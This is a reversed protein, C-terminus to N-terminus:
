EINIFIPLHDSCGGSETRRPYGKFYGHQEFLYPTRFINGYYDSNYISRQLQLGDSGDVLNGSVVINDLMNWEHKYAYTGYGAMFMSYFPNFLEGRGINESHPVAGLSEKASRDRPDDNFDGMVVFKTMPRAVQVSDVIARIQAGIAERKAQTLARGGLRSPWHSVVVFLEESDVEGWVTLIDRTHYNPINVKISCCGGLKFASPRYLLAVDIGRPDPSDFHIISYSAASLKSASVLDSLVSSNEVEAIGILTPYEGNANSIDSLVQEIRSLKAFYASSNWRKRGRPTYEADDCNVSRITDFFNEVNYFLVAHRSRQAFLSFTCFLVMLLPIFQTRKM